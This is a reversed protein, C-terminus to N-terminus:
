EELVERAMRPLGSAKIVTGIQQVVIAETADTDLIVYYIGDRFREKVESDEALGRVPCSKGVGSM